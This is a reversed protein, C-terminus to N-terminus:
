DQTHKRTTPPDVMVDEFPENVRRPAQSRSCCCTYAKPDVMDNFHETVDAMTQPPHGLKVDAQPQSVPAQTGAQVYQYVNGMHEKEIYHEKGTITNGNVDLGSFTDFKIGNSDIDKVKGTIVSNQLLNGQSSDSNEAPPTIIIVKGELGLFILGSLGGERVASEPLLLEIPDGM